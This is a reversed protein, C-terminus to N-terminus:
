GARVSCARHGSSSLAAEGGARMIVMALHTQGIQPLPTGNQQAIASLGLAPKAVGPDALDLYVQNNPVAALGFDPRWFRGTPDYALESDDLREFRM